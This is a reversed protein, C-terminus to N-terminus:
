FWRRVRKCYETYAAGFAQALYREENRIVLLRLAVFTVPALLLAWEWALLLGVGTQVLLDAAYIPNRSFAYPGDTVLASTKAYPNPDTGRRFQHVISWAMLAAGIALITSGAIILGPTQRLALVAVRGDLVWALVLMALPILPPFVWTRELRVHDRDFVSM